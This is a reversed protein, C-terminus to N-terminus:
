RAEHGLAGSGDILDTSLISRVMTRSASPWAARPTAKNRRLLGRVSHLAALFKLPEKGQSRPQKRRSRAAADTAAQEARRSVATPHADLFAVDDAIAKAVDDKNAGVFTKNL